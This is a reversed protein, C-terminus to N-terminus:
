EAGEQMRKLEALRRKEGTIYTVYQRVTKRKKSDAKESNRFARVAEDWRELAMLSIGM